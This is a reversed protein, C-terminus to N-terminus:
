ADFIISIVEDLEDLDSKCSNLAAIIPWIRPDHHEEEMDAAICACGEVVAVLYALKALIRNVAETDRSGM